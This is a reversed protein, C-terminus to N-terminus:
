RIAESHMICARQEPRRTLKESNEKPRKKGRGIFSTGWDPGIAKQGIETYREDRCNHPPIETGGQGNIIGEVTERRKVGAGSNKQGHELPV